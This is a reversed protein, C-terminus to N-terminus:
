KRLPGDGFRSPHPSARLISRALPELFPRDAELWDVDDLQDPALWRVAAHEHLVPEGALLTGTYVRLLYREGLPQSGLPVGPEVEVGLEERLERVLADTESEGPEVKGGPFEWGGPTSPTGPRLAALVLGDRVLAIGVVLQRDGSTDVLGLLALHLVTGRPLSEAVPEALVSHQHPLPM